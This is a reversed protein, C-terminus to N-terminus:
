YYNKRVSKTFGFDVVVPKENIIGWNAPRLLDQMLLDYRIAIERLEKHKLLEQNNKVDFM